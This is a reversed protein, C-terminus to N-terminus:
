SHYQKGLLRTIVDLVIGASTTKVIFADAGCEKAKDADEELDRSTLMVIPIHKYKEDFKLMRSIQHGNMKPLMLDSIILDPVLDRAMNLGTLGDEAMFTTYGVSELRMKMIKRFAPSDEIVLIRAHDATNMM